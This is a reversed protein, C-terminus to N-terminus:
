PIPADAVTLFSSEEGLFVLTRTSQEYAAPGYADAKADVTFAYDGPGTGPFDYFSRGHEGGSPGSWSLLATGCTGPAGHERLAADCPNTVSQPSACAGLDFSCATKAGSSAWFGWLRNEVTAQYGVDAMAKAGLTLGYPSRQAQANATGQELEADGLVHAAGPQVSATAEGSARVTVSSDSVGGIWVVWRHAGPEADPTELNLCLFPCADESDGTDASLQADDLASADGVAFAPEPHATEEGALALNTRDPSTHLTFAIMFVPSTDEFFTVGMSVESRTTPSTGVLDVDVPGTDTRDVRIAWSATEGAEDTYLIPAQSHTALSPSAAVLVATALALGLTAAM